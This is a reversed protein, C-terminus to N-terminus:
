KREVLRFARYYNDDKIEDLLRLELGDYTGPFFLILPYKEIVPGLRNLITHSRVIPWAKGVGTIFTISDEKLNRRIYDVVLDGEDSKLRLTNKLPTEISLTGRTKEMDFLKDLYKKEDVLALMIEYLDFEQIGFGYEGHNIKEKLYRVHDRVIMEDQPDYDFIHFGTENGLGRNKRFEENNIVDYIQDLRQYITKM